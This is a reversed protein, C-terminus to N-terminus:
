FGYQRGYWRMLVQEDREPIWISCNAIGQAVSLGAKADIKGGHLMFFYWAFDHGAQEDFDQLMSFVDIYSAEKGPHIEPLDCARYKDSWRPIVSLHRKGDSDTYDNTSFYWHDCFRHGNQGASSEQWDRFLRTCPHEWELWDPCVELFPVSRPHHQQPNDTDLFHVIKKEVEPLMTQRQARYIDVMDRVFRRTDTVISLEYTRPSLEREPALETMPQLLDRLGDPASWSHEEFAYRGTTEHKVDVEIQFFADPEPGYPAVVVLRTSRWEALVMGADKHKEWVTKADQGAAEYESQIWGEFDVAVVDGEATLLKQRASRHEGMSGALAFEWGPYASRLAKMLPAHGEQYRTHSLIETIKKKHLIEM